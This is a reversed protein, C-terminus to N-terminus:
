SAVVFPIQFTLTTGTGPASEVRMTGGAGETREAMSGLGLGFGHARAPLQRPNFGRGNDEVKVTVSNREAALRIEVVAWTAQAHKRVNSLSEQVLRYILVEMYAPLRESLDCDILIDLNATERIRRAHAQLAPLLGYSDLVEPRLDAILGRVEDVVAAFDSRLADIDEASISEFGARKKLTDANILGVGLSQLPGDHLDISVRKREAEQATLLQRLLATREAERQRLQDHQHANHIALAAHDAFATCLALRDTSVAHPEAWALELIGMRSDGVTLPLAVLSRMPSEGRFKAREEALMDDVVITRQEAFAAGGVGESPRLTATQVVRIHWPSYGAFTRVRLIDDDPDYLMLIAEGGTLKNARDVVTQLVDTLELHSVLASASEALAAFQAAREAMAEESRLRALALATTAGLAQFTEFEERTYARDRYTQVSIVGLTTGNWTLPAFMGAESAKSKNGVRGAGLKQWEPLGKVMLGKGTRLVQRVPGRAGLPGPRPTHLQPESMQQEYEIGEDLLVPFDLQDQETRALCIFFVDALFARTALRRLIEYLSAADTAAVLEQSSEYLVSLHEARRATEAYLYAREIASAAHAAFTQVIALEEPGYVDPLEHDLTIKGLCRGRSMLPVSMWARLTPADANQWRDAEIQFDRLYFAEHKLLTRSNLVSDDAPYKYGIVKGENATLTSFGKLGAIRAETAQENLLHVCVGVCPVVQMVGDMTAEIVTNLDPASQLRQSATHLAERITADRQNDRAKRSLLLALAAQEALSLLWTVEEETWHHSSDRYHVSLTGTVLSDQKLPAVFLARAALKLIPSNYKSSPDAAVDDVVLLEGGFLTRTALPYRPVHFRAARLAEGRDQPLGAHALFRAHEGDAERGTVLAFDAGLHRCATEAISQLIGDDGPNAAIRRAIDLLANLGSRSRGDDSDTDMISTTYSTALQEYNCGSFGTSGYWEPPM